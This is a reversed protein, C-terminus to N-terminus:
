ANAECAHCHRHATRNKWHAALMLAAGSISFATDLALDAHFVVTGITLLMVGGLGLLLPAVQRHHRYGPIFAAAATALVLVLLVPHANGFVGMMAPALSLVIPTAVCHIVCLVSLTQGILDTTATRM